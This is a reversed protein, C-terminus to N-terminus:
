TSDISVIVHYTGQVSGNAVIILSWDQNTTETLGSTYITQSSTTLTIVTQVPAGVTDWGTATKRELQWSITVPGSYGSASTVLRSYWPTSATTPNQPSSLAAYWTGSPNNDLSYYVTGTVSSSSGVLVDGGTMSGIIAAYVVLVVAVSSITMLTVAAFARQSKKNANM